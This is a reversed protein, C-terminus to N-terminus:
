EHLVKMCIKFLKASTNSEEKRFKQIATKLGASMETPESKSAYKAHYDAMSENSGCPQIDMNVGWCELLKKDYNNIFNEKPKRKLICMHDGSKIFDDSMNIVIRTQESSVRPFNFRCELSGNKYCTITHNHRQISNVVAKKESDCTIVEDIQAIGELTNFEPTGEIWTLMQLHPSGRNQFEIRWWHDVLSGGLVWHVTDDSKLLSMIANVQIMFHCSLVVPYKEILKQAEYASVTKSDKDDDKDAILMARIM